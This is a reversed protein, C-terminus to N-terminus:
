IAPLWWLAGPQGLSTLLRSIRHWFNFSITCISDEPFAAVELMAQVLGWGEQGTTCLVSVTMPALVIWVAKFANVSPM